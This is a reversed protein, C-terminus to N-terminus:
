REGLPKTPVLPVMADNVSWRSIGNGSSDLDRTALDVEHNIRDATATSSIALKNGSRALIGPDFDEVDEGYRRPPHFSVTMYMWSWRVAMFVSWLTWLVFFTIFVLSWIKLIDSLTQDGRDKYESCEHWIFYSGGLTLCAFFGVAIALGVYLRQLKLSIRPDRQVLSKRYGGIESKPYLDFPPVTETPVYYPDPRSDM